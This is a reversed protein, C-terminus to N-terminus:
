SFFGIILKIKKIKKGQYFIFIKFKLLKKNFILIKTRLDWLIEEKGKRDYQNKKKNFEVVEKIKREKHFIIEKKKKRIKMVNNLKQLGPGAKRGKM